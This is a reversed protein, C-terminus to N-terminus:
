RHRERMLAALDDTILGDRNSFLRTAATTQATESLEDILVRVLVNTDIAILQRGACSHRAGHYPKSPRDNLHAQRICEFGTSFTGAGATSLNRM